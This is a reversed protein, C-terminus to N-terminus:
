CVTTDLSAATQYKPMFKDMDWPDRGNAFAPEKLDTVEVLFVKSTSSLLINWFKLSWFTKNYM